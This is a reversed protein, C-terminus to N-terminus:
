NKNMDSEKAASAHKLQLKGDILFCCTEGSLSEICYQSFFWLSEEFVGRVGVTNGIWCDQMIIVNRALHNTHMRVRSSFIADCLFGYNKLSRNSDGRTVEFRSFLLPSTCQETFFAATKHSFWWSLTVCIQVLRDSSSSFFMKATQHSQNPVKVISQLAVPHTKRWSFVRLHVTPHLLPKYTLQKPSKSFNTQILM